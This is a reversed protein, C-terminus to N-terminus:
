QSLKPAPMPGACPCPKNPPAPPPPPPPPPICLLAQAARIQQMQQAATGVLNILHGCITVRKPPAVCREHNADWVQGPPCRHAPPPPPPPPPSPVHGPVSPPPPPPPPKLADRWLPYGDSPRIKGLRVWEWYTPDRAFVPACSGATCFNFLYGIASKFQEQGIQDGYQFVLDSHLKAALNNLQARGPGSSTSIPVGQAELLRLGAGYARFVPNAAGIMSIAAHDTASDPGLKPRGDFLNAFWKIYDLGPLLLKQWDIHGGSWGIKIALEAATIGVQCWAGCPPVAEM